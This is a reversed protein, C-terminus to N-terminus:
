LADGPPEGPLTLEIRVVDPVAQPLDPPGQELGVDLDPHRAVEHGPDLGPRDALLHEPAEGGALLHHPDDPILRSPLLGTV